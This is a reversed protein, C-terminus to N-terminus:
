SAFAIGSLDPQYLFCWVFAVGSFAFAYPLQELSIKVTSSGNITKPLFLVFIM